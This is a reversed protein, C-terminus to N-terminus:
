QGLAVIPPFWIEREPSSSLCCEGTGQDQFAAMSCHHKNHKEDDHHDHGHHGGGQQAAYDRLNKSVFPYSEVLQLM